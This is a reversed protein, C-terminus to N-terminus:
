LAVKKWWVWVGRGGPLLKGCVQGSAILHPIRWRLQMETAGTRQRIETSSVPEKSTEIFKLIKRTLKDAMILVKIRSYLLIGNEM